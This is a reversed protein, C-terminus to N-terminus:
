GKFLRSAAVATQYLWEFRVGLYITLVSLVTVAGLDAMPFRVPRDDAAPQDLFMLKVIRAYYYLSVVSNLIGVLALLLSVRHM